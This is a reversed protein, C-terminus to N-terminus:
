LKIEIILLRHFLLRTPIVDSHEKLKPTNPKTGIQM